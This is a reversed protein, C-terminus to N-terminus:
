ASLSVPVHAARALREIHAKQREDLRCRMTMFGPIDPDVALAWFGFRTYLHYAPNDRFVRLEVTRVGQRYCELLWSSLLATGIGHGRYGEDLQFECLHAHEGSLTWSLLGHVRHRPRWLLSHQTPWHKLFVSLSFRMDRAKWYSRMNRSVLRGAARADRGSGERAWTWGTPQSTTRWLTSFDPRQTMAM